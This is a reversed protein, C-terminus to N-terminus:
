SLAFWRNTYAFYAIADYKEKLHCSLQFPSYENFIIRERKNQIYM